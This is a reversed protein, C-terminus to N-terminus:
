PRFTAPLKAGELKAGKVNVKVLRAGTLDVDTLDANKLNVNILTAFQLNAGRLNARKLKTNTIRVGQLNQNALNAKKLNCKHCFRTALLRQVDSFEEASVTPSLPGLLLLHSAIALGAGLLVHQFRLRDQQSQKIRLPPMLSKLGLVSQLNSICLKM